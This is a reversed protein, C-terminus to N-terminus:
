ESELAWPQLTKRSTREGGGGLPTGTPVCTLPPTCPLQVQSQSVLGLDPYALSGVSGPPSPEPLCVLPAGGGPGPPARAPEALPPEVAAGAPRPGGQPAPHPKGPPAGGRGQSGAPSDSGAQTQSQGLQRILFHRLGLFTGLHRAEARGPAVQVGLGAKYVWFM